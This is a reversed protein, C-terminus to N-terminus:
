LGTAFKKGIKVVAGSYKGINKVLKAKKNNESTASNVVKLLEVIEDRDSKKPFLSELENARLTTHSSLKEGFEKKTKASAIGGIISKAM